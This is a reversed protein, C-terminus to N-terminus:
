SGSASAASEVDLGGGAQGQYTGEPEGVEGDKRRDSWGGNVKVDDIANVTLTWELDPLEDLSFSFTSGPKLDGAKRKGDRDFFDFAGDNRPKYYCGKLDDGIGEPAVSDIIIKEAM